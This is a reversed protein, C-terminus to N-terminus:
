ENAYGAVKMTQFRSPTMPVEEIHKFDDNINFLEAQTIQNKRHIATVDISARSKGLFKLIFARFL